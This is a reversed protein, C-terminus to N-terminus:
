FVVRATRVAAAADPDGDFEISPADQRGSLTRMYELTDARVTGAPQGDGLMWAGGIPGTLELVVAPGSWHRGLDRLVQAVVERDHEGVAFERGTARAADLRHMWMDRIAIVDYMYTIPEGPLDPDSAPLHFRRMFHRRVKDVAKPGLTRLDALIEAGSHQRRDDIQLENAADLRSLGPYRRKPGVVWHRLFTRVSLADDCAGVMHAVMERVNWRDCDTPQQWEREELQEYLALGAALEAKHIEGAREPPTQPITRARPAATIM